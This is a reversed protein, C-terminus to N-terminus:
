KDEEEFIVSNEDLWNDIELELIAEENVPNTIVSLAALLEEYLKYSKDFLEDLANSKLKRDTIFIARELKNKVSKLIDNGIKLQETKNMKAMVLIPRNNSLQWEKIARYIFGRIVFDEFPTMSSMEQAIETIIAKQEDTLFILDLNDWAIQIREDFSLAPLKFQQCIESIENPAIIISRTQNKLNEILIKTEKLKM